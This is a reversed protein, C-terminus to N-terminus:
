KVKINPPNIIEGFSAWGYDYCKTVDSGNVSKMQLCYFLILHWKLCTRQAALQVIPSESRIEGWLIVENNLLYTILIVVRPSPSPSVGWFKYHPNHRRSRQVRLRNESWFIHLKGSVIESRVRLCKGKEVWFPFFDIGYKLCTPLVYGIQSWFTWFKYRNESWFPEFVM